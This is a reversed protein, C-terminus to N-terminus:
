YFGSELDDLISDIAVDVGMAKRRAAEYLDKMISFAWEVGLTEDSIEEVEAGLSNLIAVVYEVDGRHARSERTFIRVTSNSFPLQFVGSRESEDWALEGLRTKEALTRVLKELKPNNM